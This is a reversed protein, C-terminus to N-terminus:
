ETAEPSAREAARREQRLSRRALTSELLEYMRDVYENFPRL